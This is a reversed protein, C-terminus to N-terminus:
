DANPGRDQITRGPTVPPPPGVGIEPRRDETEPRRDGAALVGSVWQEPHIRQGDAAIVEFHLHTGTARGSKGARGIPEGASVAEGKEVLRASLHAYRTRTGDAHELVVTAGYGGQDGSFVVRGAGAAQVEQGYAARLDVGQHFKMAHTFPDHRWGFASTVAGAVPRVLKAVAGPIDAAAGAVDRVVSVVDPGSSQEPVRSQPSPVPSQPSPAVARAVAQGPQLREFAEELQGSLGLGRIRALHSALELDLTEFLSEAGMGLMGDGGGEEEWSGARRMDRLVQVLLMAEFEAAIAQLRERDGGPTSASAGRASAGAEAGPSSQAALRAREVIAAADVNM